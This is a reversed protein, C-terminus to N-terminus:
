FTKVRLKKNIVTYKLMEQLQLMESAVSSVECMQMRNYKECKKEIKIEVNEQFCQFGNYTILLKLIDEIVWEIGLSFRIFFKVEENRTFQHKSDHLPYQKIRDSIMPRTKSCSVCKLRMNDKIEKKNGKESPGFYTLSTQSVKM